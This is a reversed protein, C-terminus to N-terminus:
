PRHWKSLLNSLLIITELYLTTSTLTYPSVQVHCLLLRLISFHFALLKLYNHYVKLHFISFKSIILSARILFYNTICYNYKIIISNYHDNYSKKVNLSM